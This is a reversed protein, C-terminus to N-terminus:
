PTPGTLEWTSLWTSPSPPEEIEFEVEIVEDDFPEEGTENIGGPGPAVLGATGSGDGNSALYEFSDTLTDGTDLADVAANNDDALYSWSGDAAITLTGYQGAIQTTGSAAVAQGDVSAIVAEGGLDNDFM